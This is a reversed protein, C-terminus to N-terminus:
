LVSRRIPDPPQNRVCDQTRDSHAGHPYLQRRLRHNRHDLLPGGLGQNQGKTFAEILIQRDEPTSYEYIDLTVGIVAGMQTGTGMASAEITESKPGRSLAFTSVLVLFSLLTLSVLSTKHARVIEIYRM